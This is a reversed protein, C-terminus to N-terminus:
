LPVYIRPQDRYEGEAIGFLVEAVDRAVRDAYQPDHEFKGKNALTLVPLHGTQWSDELTTQLSNLGDRNRNETFLVWGNQQCHNWVERDDLNRPLDVDHFNVLEVPIRLLIDWLALRMLLM